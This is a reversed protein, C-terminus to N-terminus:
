FFLKVKHSAEFRAQCLPCAPRVRSQSEVCEHCLVHGCSALAVLSTGNSELESYAVLCIPCSKENARASAQSKKHRDLDSTVILLEDEVQNLKLTLSENVKGAEDLDGKILSLEQSSTDSQLREKLNALEELQTAMAAVQSDRENALQVELESVYAELDAIFDENRSVRVQLVDSLQSELQAVMRKASSLENRTEAIDRKHAQSEKDKEIIRGNLLNIMSEQTAITSKDDCITALDAERRAVLDTIVHQISSLEENIAILKKMEDALVGQDGDQCDRSERSTAESM